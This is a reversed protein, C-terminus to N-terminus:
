VSWTKLAFDDSPKPFSVSSQYPWREAELNNKLVLVVFEIQKQDAPFQLKDVPVGFEIIRNAAASLLNETGSPTKLFFEKIRPEPVSQLSLYVEHDQPSLFIVKFALDKVLDSNHLAVSLDFRFYLNELDFGYHFSKLVTEVQHMSGGSHGVEYFGAPQWEFYNTVRGDIKPTIFDIPELTPMKRVMGKIAKFLHDPVKEGLLEYVCILHQRFLFDFMADNGSSHDDGYWWNWDSGEAIYIKEWASKVAPADKKEPHNLVYDALFKRTEALYTWAQNDEPHGIWIGYNGNIWSGPWLNKLTNEPPNNELYDSIRVTEISPDASIRQYLLRLFDWGDNAYYEWCNEGDLIVSVLCGKLPDSYTDRIAHLKRMFDDVADKADWRTYVFGIADSLAHDRFIINLQRNM